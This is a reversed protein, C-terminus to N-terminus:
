YPADTSAGCPWGATDGPDDPAFNGFVYCMQNGAADPGGDTVPTDRDNPIECEWVLADGAALRLEGSAGGPVRVDPRPVQNTVPTSYTLLAPELPDYSEYVPELAGTAARRVWISFRTAGEHSH